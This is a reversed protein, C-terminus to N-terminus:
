TATTNEILKKAFPIYTELRESQICSGFPGPKDPGYNWEIGLWRLSEQMHEIAGAVYRERDTDEIRLIFQGNNKKAWLFAYLATRASGIHTFGTPSPAFRTVVQKNISLQSM